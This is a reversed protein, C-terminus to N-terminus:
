AVHLFHRLRVPLRSIAVGLGDLPTTSEDPLPQHQCSVFPDEMDLEFSDTATFSSTRLPPHMNALECATVVCFRTTCILPSRYLLVPFSWTACGNLPVNHPHCRHRPALTTRKQLRAHRAIPNHAEAIPRAACDPRCRRGLIDSIHVRYLFTGNYRQGSLLLDASYRSSFGPITGGELM